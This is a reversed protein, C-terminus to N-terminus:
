RPQGPPKPKSEKPPAGSKLVPTLKDDRELKEAQEPTLGFLARAAPSLYNYIVPVEFAREREGVRVLITMRSPRDKGIEDGKYRLSFRGYRGPAVREPAEALEFSEQDFDVRVVQVTEGLGNALRVGGRRRRDLFHIRLTPPVVELSGPAPKPQRNPDSRYPKLLTAADERKVRVRWVGEELVWKEVVQARHFGEVGPFSRRVEVTVLVASETQPEIGILKWAQIQPERRKIFANRSDSSVFELAEAKEQLALLDWYGALRNRLEELQATQPQLFLILTLALTM